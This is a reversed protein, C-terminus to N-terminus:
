RPSRVGTPRGLFRNLEEAPADSKPVASGGPAGKRRLGDGNVGLASRIAVDIKEANTLWADEPLVDKDHVVALSVLTEIGASRFALDNGDLDTAHLWLSLAAVWGSEIVGGIAQLVVRGTSSVSDSAGDWRATSGSFPARLIVVRAKMEADCGLENRLAAARKERFAHYREPDRQGTAADIFGGTETEIRKVVDSVAQPDPVEFAAATLEDRLRQELKARREDGAKDEFPLDMPLLCLKSGPELPVAVAADALAAVMLM